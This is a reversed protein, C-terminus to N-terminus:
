LRMDQKNSWRSFRCSAVLNSCNNKKKNKFSNLIAFCKIIGLFFNKNLNLCSIKINLKKIEKKLYGGSNLCIVQHEFKNYKNNSLINFLVKEAGGLGLTTIFHIIRIKESKM